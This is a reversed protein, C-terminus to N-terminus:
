FFYLDESRDERKCPSEPLKDQLALEKSQENQLHLAAELAAGASAAAEQFALAAASEAVAEEPQGMQRQVSQTAAQVAVRQAESCREETRRIAETVAADQAEKAQKVGQDIAQKMQREHEIILRAETAKSGAITAAEVAARLEAAFREEMMASTRAMQEGM